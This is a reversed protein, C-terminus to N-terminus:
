QLNTLKDLSQVGKAIIKANMLSQVYYDSLAANAASFDLSSTSRSATELDRFAGQQAQQNRAIAGTLSGILDPAEGSRAASASAEPANLAASFWQADAGNAVPADDDAELTVSPTPLSSSHNVKM